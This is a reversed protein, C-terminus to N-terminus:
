RVNGQGYYAGPGHKRMYHKEVMAPNMRASPNLALTAAAMGAVAELVIANEVAKAPTAGWTFPGHHVALAAPTEVPDIGLRRFVDAISDGTAEEYADRIQEPPIEDTVPVDTHFTDAHTTGLDPIPRAAQAWATANPSHTHAVGGVAPFARYLVLHTPTDSSPRWKGEVVNGDMDVVVMDDPLMSAYSVGSPKIAVLGLGRDIGSVNGWTLTVLGNRALALNAECVDRKLQELM